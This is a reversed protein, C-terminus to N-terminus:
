AASPGNQAGPAKPRRRRRASSRYRIPQQPAPTPPGSRAMEDQSCSAQSFGMPVWAITLKEGLRVVPGRETPKQVIPNKVVDIEHYKPNGGPEAIPIPNVTM